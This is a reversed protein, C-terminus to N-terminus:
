INVNKSSETSQYSSSRDEDAQVKKAKIAADYEDDEEEKVGNNAIVASYAEPCQTQLKERLSAKSSGEKPVLLLFQFSIIFTEVWNQCKYFVIMQLAERISKLRKSIIELDRKMNLMNMTHKKFDKNARDLRITSLNNVNSLMENTKEFRQLMEKQSQVMLGVDDQSVVGALGQVLVESASYNQYIAPDNDPGDMEVDPYTIQFLSNTSM